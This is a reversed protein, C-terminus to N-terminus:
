GEEEEINWQQLAVMGIAAACSPCLPPEESHREEGRTWLYRGRGGIAYGDDDEGEAADIAVGCADCREGDGVEERERPKGPADFLAEHGAVVFSKTNGTEM